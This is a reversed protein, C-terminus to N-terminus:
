GEAVTISVLRVSQAGEGRLDDSEEVLIEPRIPWESEAYHRAAAEIAEPRIGSLVGVRLRLGTVARGGAAEEAKRMVDGVLGTEHM